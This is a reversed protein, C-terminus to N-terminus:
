LREIGPPLYKMHLIGEPFFNILFYLYHKNDSQPNFYGELIGRFAHNGERLKHYYFGAPGDKEDCMELIDEENKNKFMRHNGETMVFMYFTYFGIYEDYKFWRLYTEEKKTKENTKTEKIGFVIDGKTLEDYTESNTLKGALINLYQEDKSLKMYSSESGFMYNYKIRGIDIYMAKRRNLYINDTTFAYWGARENNSKKVVKIRYPKFSIDGQHIFAIRNRLADIYEKKWSFKKMPRIDCIIDNAVHLDENWEALKCIGDYERLNKVTKADWGEHKLEIDPVKRMSFQPKIIYRVGNEDFYMGLVEGIFLLPNKFVNSPQHTYKVIDGTHDSTGYSDIHSKRWELNTDRIIGAINQIPVFVLGEKQEEDDIRSYKTNWFNLEPHKDISNTMDIWEDKEEDFMKIPTDEHIKCMFGIVRWQKWKKPLTKTDEGSLIADKKDKSISLNVVEPPYEECIMRREPLYALTRMDPEIEEVKFDIIDGIVARFVKTNSICYMIKITDGVLYQFSGNSFYNKLEEDKNDNIDTM